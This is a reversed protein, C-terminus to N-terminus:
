ESYDVKVNYIGGKQLLELELNYMYKTINNLINFSLDVNDKVCLKLKLNGKYKIYGLISNNGVYYVTLTLNKITNVNNIAVSILDDTYVIKEYNNYIDVDKVDIDVLELVPRYKLRISEYSGCNDCITHIEFQEDELLDSIEIIQLINSFHKTQWDTLSCGCVKCNTNIHKLISTGVYDFMGM